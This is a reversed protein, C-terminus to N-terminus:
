PVRLVLNPKRSFLQEVLEVVRHRSYVDMGHGHVERPGRPRQCSPPGNLAGIPGGDGNRDVEAVGQLEPEAGAVHEGFVLHSYLDLVLLVRGEDEGMLRTSRAPSKSERMLSTASAISRPSSGISARSSLPM